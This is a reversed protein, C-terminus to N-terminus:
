SQLKTMLVSQHQDGARTAIREIVRQQSRLPDVCDVRIRSLCSQKFKLLRANAVKIKIIVKAKETFAIM